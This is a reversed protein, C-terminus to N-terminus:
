RSEKNRSANLFWEVTGKGLDIVTDPLCMGDIRQWKGNDDTEIIDLMHSRADEPDGRLVEERHKALTSVDETKLCERPPFSYIEDPPAPAVIDVQSCIYTTKM